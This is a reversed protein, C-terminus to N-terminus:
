GTQMFTVTGFHPNSMLAQMTQIDDTIVALEGTLGKLILVEQRVRDYRCDLAKGEVIAGSALKLRIPLQYLCAIELYDHEQCSTPM